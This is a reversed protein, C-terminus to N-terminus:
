SLITRIKKCKRQWCNTQPKETLEEAGPKLASNFGFFGDKIEMMEHKYQIKKRNYFKPSSVKPRNLCKITEEQPQSKNQTPQRTQDQGQNEDKLVEVDNSKHESVRRALEAGDGQEPREHQNIDFKEFVFIDRSHILSFHRRSKQQM